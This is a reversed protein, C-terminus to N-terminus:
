EGAPEEMMGEDEEMMGESDLPEQLEIEEPEDTTDCGIMLPTFLGLVLLLGLLPTKM